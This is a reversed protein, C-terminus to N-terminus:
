LSRVVLWRNITPCIRMYVGYRVTFKIIGSGIIRRIFLYIFLYDATYVFCITHIDYLYKYLEPWVRFADQQLASKRVLHGHAPVLRPVTASTSCLPMGRETV